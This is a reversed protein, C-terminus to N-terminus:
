IMGGKLLAHEMKEKLERQTKANVGLDPCSWFWGGMNNQKFYTYGKYNRKEM